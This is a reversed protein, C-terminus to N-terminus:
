AINNQQEMHWLPYLTNRLIRGRALKVLHREEEAISRM